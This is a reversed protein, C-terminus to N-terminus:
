KPLSAAPNVFDVEGFAAPPPPGKGPPYMRAITVSAPEDVPVTFTMVRGDPAKVTRQLTKPAKPPRAANSNKAMAVAGWILLGLWLPTTLIIVSM